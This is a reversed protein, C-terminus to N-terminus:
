LLRISVFSYFADLYSGNPGYVMRLSALTSANDAVVTSPVAAPPPPQVNSVSPVSEGPVVARETVEPVANSTVALKSEEAM